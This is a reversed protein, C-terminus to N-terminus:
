EKVDENTEAAADRAAQRKKDLQKAIFYGVAGCIVAAIYPSPATYGAIGILGTLIYGGAVGFATCHFYLRRLGFIRVDAPDIDEEDEIMDADDADPDTLLEPAADTQKSLEAQEATTDSQMPTSAQEDTLPQQNESM